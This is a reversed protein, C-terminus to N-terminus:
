FVLWSVMDMSCITFMSRMTAAVMCSTIRSNRVNCSNCGATRQLRREANTFASKPFKSTMRHLMASAYSTSRGLHPAESSPESDSPSEAAHDSIVSRVDKGAGDSRWDLVLLLDRPQFRFVWWSDLAGEELFVNFTFCNGLLFENLLILDEPFRAAPSACTGGNSFAARM